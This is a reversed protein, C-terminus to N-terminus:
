GGRLVLPLYLRHRQWPPPPPAVWDGIWLLDSTRASRTPSTVDTATIVLTEAGVPTGAPVTAILWFHRIQNPYYAGLQFPGTIPTLPVAPADATGSYIGWPLGLASSHALTVTLPAWSWNWVRHHLSITQTPTIWATHMGDLELPPMAELRLFHPGLCTIGWGQYSAADATAGPAGWLAPPPTQGEYCYYLPLLRGRGAEPTGGLDLWFNAQYSWDTMDPVSACDVAPTSVVGLALWHEGPAAPLENELFTHYWPKYELPVSLITAAPNYRKLRLTPTHIPSFVLPLTYPATYALTPPYVPFRLALFAHGGQLLAMQDQCLSATMTQADTPRLRLHLWIRWLYYDDPQAAPLQAPQSGALPLAAAQGGGGSVPRTVAQVGSHLGGCVNPEYISIWQTSYHFTDTVETVGPPLDYSVTVMETEGTTPNVPLRWHIGRGYNNAQAQHSYQINTAGPPPFWILFAENDETDDPRKITIQYTNGSPNQIDASPKEPPQPLIVDDDSAFFNCHYAGALVLVLLLLFLLVLTTKRRNM